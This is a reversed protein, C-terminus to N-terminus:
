KTFNLCMDELALQPQLHNEIMQKALEVSKIDSLIKFKIAKNESNSKLLALMYNQIENLTKESGQEKSLLFLSQALDLSDKREINPYDAFIEDISSYNMDNVNFSPLFFSQSRSIITEILDNKDRTLFFFTTNEPPEEIIKLLSNATEQHFNSETLGFPTWIGDKIEADCFIFVRHYDSTTLLSNKLMQSQKVSIVTKSDDDSPKNDIKSITLIAPHQGERAWNCNLCSCNKNQTERCNLIRAIESAMKYQASIDQGYLLISHSLSKATNKLGAEFYETLFPYKEKLDQEFM